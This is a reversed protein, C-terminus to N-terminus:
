GRVHRHECWLDAWASHAPDKVSSIRLKDDGIWLAGADVRVNRGFKGHVSDHRLLYALHAPELLDNLAVIQVDKRQDAARLAMRGIRGFGNIGIRGLQDRPEHAKGRANGADDRDAGAGEHEASPSDGAARTRRKRMSSARRRSSSVANGSFSIVARVPMPSSLVKQRTNV